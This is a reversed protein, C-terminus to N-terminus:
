PRRPTAAQELKEVLERSGSLLKLLESLELARGRLTHLAVTDATTLMMAHLAALETQLFAEVLKFAPLHAVTHLSRATSLDPKTLM